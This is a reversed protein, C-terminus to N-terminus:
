VRLCIRPSALLFSTNSKIDSRRRFFKEALFRGSFGVSPQSNLTSTHAHSFWFLNLAPRNHTWLTSPSARMHNTNPGEKERNVQQSGSAVTIWIHINLLLKPEDLVTTPYSHHSRPSSEEYRTRHWWPPPSSGISVATILARSCLIRVTCIHSPHFRM